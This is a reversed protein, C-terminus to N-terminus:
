SRTHKWAQWGLVLSITAYTLVSVVRGAPWFRVPDLEWYTAGLQAFAGLALALAPIEAGIPLRWPILLRSGVAAMCAIVAALHALPYATGLLPGQRLAPYAAVFGLAIAGGIGLCAWGGRRSGLTAWLCAAISWRWLVRLTVDIGFAARLLGTYPVPGRLVLTLVYLIGTAGVLSWLAVALPRHDPFRRAVALALLACLVLLATPIGEPIM